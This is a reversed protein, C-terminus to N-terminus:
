ALAIKYYTSNIDRGSSNVIACHIMMGDWTDNATVSLEPDTHSKWISWDAAGKKKYYWQYTFTDGSATNKIKLTSGSSVTLTKENMITILAAKSTLTSGTADTIKCYVQMGDWSTNATATTTATTHGNWVTWSTSCGSKKYYWQYKLGTGSAKVTFKATDGSKVVVDSPQTIIKFKQTVTITAASSKVSNGASDKVLCYLQIGNWTDNPTCTESAHTRGNWVSWETQGKKKFYWQYKLGLGSAKVSITLSEGLTKSQSQPQQTIKLTASITVTATNSHISTGKSDTVNCYVQMGDWSDNSTATTSATTRTGWKSWTSVGKKKYYWQYKLGVGSAKVTFTVSDGSNVTINQPQSTIKLEANVTVTAPNSDVTIGASNSVACYVQMGDWTDNATGSTTATTHGKWLSWASAGKKKYYWQYKLGTGSAKVTFSATDGSMVSVNQPQATIVPAGIEPSLMYFTPASDTKNWWSDSRSGTSYWVLKGNSVAPACDSLGEDSDETLSLVSGTLKGNADLKAYKLTNGSSSLEEWVAFFKSDSMKVLYPNCVTVGANEDYNTLWIFSQSSLDSKSAASVFINKQSRDAYSDDQKVSAGVTIVRSGSLQMDGLTVKTLNAGTSGKIELINGSAVASGATNRKVLVVARPHADGHDATYVYEGDTRIVQNFSHSVYGSSINWVIYNEYLSKMNEKDIFFTLNAQHNNGDSSKYMKHSTHIYLRDADETMSVTGAEFPVYTNIGYYSKSGLRNWSKDYKIVRVVETADSEDDNQQGCVIFNYKAGSLFGGFIPLELNLKKTSKLSLASSYNEIVISEGINELRIFTGDSNAVLYSKATEAWNWANERYGNWQYSHAGINHSKASDVAVVTFNSLQSGSLEAKLSPSASDSKTAAYAGTGMSGFMVAAALLALIKKCKM